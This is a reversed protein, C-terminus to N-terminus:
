AIIRMCCRLRVMVPTGFDLSCLEAKRGVTDLREGLRAKKSKQSLPGKGDSAAPAAANPRRKKNVDVLRAIGRNAKAVRDSANLKLHEERLLSAVPRVLTATVAGAAVSPAVSGVPCQSGVRSTDATM